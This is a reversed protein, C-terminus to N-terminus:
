PTPSNRWNFLNETVSVQQTTLGQPWSVTSTVRIEQNPPLTGDEDDILIRRTFITRDGITHNYFGNATDYLLPGCINAGSSCNTFTDAIPTGSSIALPDVECGPDNGNQCVSAVIMLFNGWGVQGPQSQIFSDRTNRMLEIGEQALYSATLQNKAYATNNIGQASVVVMATIALMFISLSVLVEVLTFGTSFFPMTKRQRRSGHPFRFNKTEFSSFIKKIPLVFLAIGNELLQTFGSDATNIKQKKFINKM